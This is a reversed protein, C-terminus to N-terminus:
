RAQIFFDKDIAVEQDHQNEFRLLWTNDDLKSIALVVFPGNGHEAKYSELRGGANCKPNVKENTWGIKGGVEANGIRLTVFQGEYSEILYDRDIAVESGSQDIFHVFYDRDRPNTVNTVVFPGKGHKSILREIEDGLPWLPSRSSDSWTVKGGVKAEGIRLVATKSAQNM